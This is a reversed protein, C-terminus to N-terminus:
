QKAIETRIQAKQEPSLTFWLDDEPYTKTLPSGDHKFVGAYCM